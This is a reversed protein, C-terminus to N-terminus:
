INREKLEIFRHAINEPTFGLKEALEQGNGSDGFTNITITDGKPGIYDRWGINSGMEVALKNDLNSPLVSNKYDQSQQNFLEWSPMSVVNVFINKSELIKQAKIALEVESGTAIIIGTAEEAGESILYAGKQVGELSANDLVPVDHRGLIIATPTKKSNAAILWAAKTENADAPRIVNLNPMARLSILHEIPQHTPGDPGLMISDHTFVYTVPVKMIASMRIASRMYDSFVLFTGCYGKIGGHLAIGNIIAAMGFERVGFHINSGRYDEKTMFDNNRLTTKNSSALDASGGIISPVKSAVENLVTGSASRTAVKEETFETSLESIEIENEMSRIFETALGPYKQQYQEFLENWKNESDVGNSIVQSFDEKVEDPIHFPEKFHWGYQQKILQAEEEGVPNSHIHATGSLNPSGYGIVTKVEILTPKNTEKKGLEIAQQIKELNNGDEVLITQWGMAKYKEQVNETNSDTVSGDSCIDNSDYLVILKGLGLHGALSMAEQGVGEMLDGDGCITYTYHDVINLDDKNYKAALHREAIAMGVVMPLGQGLPGTTAEVGPTYGVEPHGPTKSGLKRFNKLDSLSVDYGTLHLLTYQLISGHGSSLVFRDRDYWKPNKPNHKLVNRYLTYAMPAAGLPMGLHGHKAYEVSDISLTRVSTVSLESINEKTLPNM